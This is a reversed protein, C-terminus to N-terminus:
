DRPQRVCSVVTGAIGTCGIISAVWAHGNMALVGAVALSSLAVLTGLRHQHPAQRLADRESEIRHDQEREAMTLIRDASGPLLEDYARYMAPPPLPGPLASSEIISKRVIEPLAQLVNASPPNGRQAPDTSETKRPKPELADLSKTSPKSHPM